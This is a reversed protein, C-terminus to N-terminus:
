QAKAFAAFLDMTPPGAPATGWLAIASGNPQLAIAANAHAPDTVTGLEDPTSFGTANTYGFVRVPGDAELTMLASRGQTSAGALKAFRTGKTKALAVPPEWTGGVLHRSVLNEAAIGTSTAYVLVVSTEGDPLLTGFFLESEDPAVDFRKPFSTAALPVVTVFLKKFTKNETFLAEGTPLVKMQEVYGEQPTQLTTVTGDPARRVVILAKSSQAAIVITGDVLQLTASDSYLSPLTGSPVLTEKPSWTKGDVSSSLFLSTDPSDGMWVVNAGTGGANPFVGVLQKGEFDSTLPVFSNAGPAISLLPQGYAAGLVTGDVLQAFGGFSSKAVPISTELDPGRLFVSGAKADYAAFLEGKPGAFAELHDEDLTGVKKAASWVVSTTAGANGGQAGGAGAQSTGASGGATTGGAGAQGV